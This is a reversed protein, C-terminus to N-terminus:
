QFGTLRRRLVFAATALCVAAAALLVVVSGLVDSLSGDRFILTKWGELAWYHPTLRAATLLSDSFIEIPVMCGGLAAFVLGLPPSVATTQDESTMVSGVLLGAGTGVLAFSGVLAVAGFPDGWPVGFVLAGVLLIILSQALALVFWGVAIGFVIAGAGVPAALSRHLVGERRARVVIAASTLSNIFTFLM